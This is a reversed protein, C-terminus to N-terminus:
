RERLARGAAPGILRDVGWFRGVGQGGGGAHAPRAWAQLWRRPPPPTELPTPAAGAGGEWGQIKKGGGRRPAIRPSAGRLRLPPLPTLNVSGVARHGGAAGIPRAQERCESGARNM